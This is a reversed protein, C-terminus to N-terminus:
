EQSASYASPDLGNHFTVVPFARQFQCEITCAWRTTHSARLGATKAADNWRGPAVSLSRELAFLFGYPWVKM